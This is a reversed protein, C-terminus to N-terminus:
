VNERERERETKNTKKATPIQRDIRTHSSQAQSIKKERKQKNTLVLRPVYIKKKEKKKPKHNTYFVQKHAHTHTSCLNHFVFGACM